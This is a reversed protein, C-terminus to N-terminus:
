KKNFCKMTSITGDEDLHDELVTQSGLLVHCETPTMNEDMRGDYKQNYWLTVSGKIFPVRTKKSTFVMSGGYKPESLVFNWTAIRRSDINYMTEESQIPLRTILRMRKRLTRRLYQDIDNTTYRYSNIATIKVSNRKYKITAQRLATSNRIMKIENEALVDYLVSIRPRIHFIEEKSFLYPIDSAKLICRLKAEEKASKLSNRCLQVFKSKKGKTDLTSSWDELPIGNLRMAYFEFDRKLLRNNEEKTMLQKLVEIAKQPMGIKNYVGALGRGVTIENISSDPYKNESFRRYLEEFWALAARMMDEKDAMSAIFYLEEVSLPVTTYGNMKGDFLDKTDLDFMDYLKLINIASSQLDRENVWGGVKREVIGLTINFDQSAPTTECDDCWILRFIKNWDHYIRYLIHFTNLPNESFKDSLLQQEDEAKTLLSIIDKPVFGATAETADIYRNLGKILRREEERLVNIQCVSTFLGSNTSILKCSEYAYAPGSEYSAKANSLYALNKTLDYIAVQLDGSQVISVVDRITNEVTINGHYKQLQNGLVENFAPCDWDMGWYVVNQIKPHWKEAPRMNLDDFLDAVSASYEIGRFQGIKADGVGLILNCTRPSNAIRNISDDLTKDFQLIDRLLFTFPTGFRSESGFTSDPFSVGIESIAMKQSSMGTISGFWGTWGFNAFAHGDKPYAPHYVTVQPYDKFPGDVSWDLARLQLLSGKVPVASGWAGFMSCSGKTLEGIMHIRLLKQLDIGCGDAIGQAEEFFYSGSYKRTIDLELDLAKELGFDAIDKLFWPKFIHVTGNIAEIVQDELYEWVADMMKVAKDGLLQGQAKGWDYPKGWVHVIDFADEGSGVTFLKGNVVSKVYRPPETYIQNLNQKANKSPSGHCFAAKTVHPVLVLIALTWLSVM